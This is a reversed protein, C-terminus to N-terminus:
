AGACHINYIIRRATSNSMDITVNDFRLWYDFIDKRARLRYVRGRGALTHPHLAQKRM